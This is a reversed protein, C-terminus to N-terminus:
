EELLIIGSRLAYKVLGPLDHINLKTMINARHADITKVSLNFRLAIQKNTLGIVLCRLIERQRNTLSESESRRGRPMFEKVVTKPSLPSLYIQGHQIKSIAEALENGVNTKIIYGSAGAHIAESMFKDDTQYSLIVVSFDPSHQKLKKITEIDKSTTDLCEMLVIDPIKENVLEMATTLDNVEGVIDFRGQEELLSDYSAQNLQEKIVLVRLKDKSTEKYNGM